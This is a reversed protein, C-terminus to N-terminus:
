KKDMFRDLLREGKKDIVTCIEYLKTVFFYFTDWIIVPLSVLLIKIVQKWDVNNFYKKM